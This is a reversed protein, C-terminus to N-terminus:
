SNAVAYAVMHEIASIGDRFLTAEVSHWFDEALATTPPQDSRASVLLLEKDELQTGESEVYAVATTATVDEYGTEASALSDIAADRAEAPVTLFLMVISGAM